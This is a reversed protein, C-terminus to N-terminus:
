EIKLRKRDFAQIKELKQIRFIMLSAEVFITTIGVVLSLIISSLPDWGFIKLGLLYGSIFGLFMMTIFGFGFTM